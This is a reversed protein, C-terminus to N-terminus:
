STSKANSKSQRISKQLLGTHTNGHLKKWESLKVSEAWNDEIIEPKCICPVGFEMGSEEMLASLNNLLKITRQQSHKRQLSFLLEDHVQLIIKTEQGDLSTLYKDCKTLATKVIDGETGQVIYNVGAYAKNRPVQLRYGSATTVYGHRRVFSVTRAISEAVNPFLKLVRSHTGPVGCMFDIKTPGAGFIIGFNVYKAVKRQAKTPEEVDFISKAVFTHFDFGDEFAKILSPEKSWYAFIRLQLQDYDISAWLRDSPPGFVRRISYVTVPNGNEDFHEKGKGINQGNPNSSSLRTTSTGCQHFSPHLIQNLQFRKYSQMYTVASNVERYQLLTDIFRLAVKSKQQYKLEPLASKDTSPSGSPTTRTVDFEFYDYIVSKLQLHSNPNFDENDVLKQMTTILSKRLNQSEQLEQKFKTSHLNIGNRAMRYIPMIVDHQIAYPALLEPNAAFTQEQCIFLAATRVADKIAYTSCISRYPHSEPYNYYDAIARALWFDCKHFKDKQGALHTHGEEAIAWGLKKAEHRLSKICDDLEKEDNDLIECHLLAQEKLGKPAKSDILHTRILTDHFDKSSEVVIPLAAWKRSPLLSLMFLDYAMNHFVLCDFSLIYNYISNLTRTSWQPIRTRPNVPAEWYNTHGLNDCTSVAFSRCGHHGFLGTGETDIAIFSEIPKYKAKPM